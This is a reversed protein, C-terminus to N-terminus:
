RCVRGIHEGQTCPRGGTSLPQFAPSPDSSRAEGGIGEVGADGVKLRSHVVNGGLTQVELARRSLPGERLLVTVSQGLAHVAQAVNGVIVVWGFGQAKQGLGGGLTM